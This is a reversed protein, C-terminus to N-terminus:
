HEPGSMRARIRLDSYSRQIRVPISISAVRCSRLARSARTRCKFRRRATLSYAERGHCRPCIAAGSTEPWRLKCFRLYAAEEGEAYITRLSLTGAAASLLFHQAM